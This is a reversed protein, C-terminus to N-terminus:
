TIVGHHQLLGLIQTTPDDAHDILETAWGLSRAGDLNETRDDFFLIAAGSYGTVREVERYSAPAPKETHMLHSAFRHRVRSLTPFENNSDAKPFLREWEVETVNSLVATEITTADLADFVRAIGPYEAIPSARTINRADEPTLMGASTEALLVFYEERDITGLSLRPLHRRRTEFQQLWVSPFSFGALAADEAWTRGTRVLVGGLDFVVLDHHQKM